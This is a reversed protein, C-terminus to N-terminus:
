INDPGQGLAGSPKNATDLSVPLRIVFTAGSDPLDAYEISGQHEKIITNVIALGLGSRDEASKTSYFPEFINKRAEFAIGPGSDSFCIELMGGAQQMSLRIMKDSSAAMADVSNQFLNIFVQELQVSNGFVTSLNEGIERELSINGLRLIEGMLTLSNALVEPLQLQEFQSTDSRGFHRLHDTIKTIRGVQRLAERFNDRVEAPDLQQKDIDKLASEYTVRIYSLPQNIEHAVGTAIKGLSALKSQTLAKIELEKRKKEARDLETIDRIIVQIAMQHEFIIRRASAEVLIDRGDKRRAEIVYRLQTGNKALSDGLWPTDATQGPWPLLMKAEQGLLDDVGCGFITGFAKNLWIFIEERVIAVGDAIGESINRFKEESERLAAETERRRAIEQELEDVKIELGSKLTSITAFSDSLSRVMGSYTDTLLGMDDSEETKGGKAKIEELLRNLPETVGQVLFYTAISGVGLFFLLILINKYLMERIDKRIATKDFVVGVSGIRLTQGSRLVGEEEPFFLGEESFESPKALVPSWFEVTVEDEFHAVQQLTDISTVSGLRDQRRCIDTLEMEGTIKRQLLNGALDFVCAGIVRDETLVNRLAAELQRRDRAFLGLRANDALMRAHMMGDLMMEKEFSEQQSHLSFLSFTCTLLIIVSVMFAFLKGSFSMFIRKFFPSKM